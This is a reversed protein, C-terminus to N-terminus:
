RGSVKLAGGTRALPATSATAYEPLRNHSRGEGKTQGHNKPYNQM